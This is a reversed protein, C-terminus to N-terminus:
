RRKPDNSRGTLYDLSVDFYDALACLTNVHPFNAANEFQSVAPRSLGIADALAQASIKRAHRLAKIRDAFIKQDFM